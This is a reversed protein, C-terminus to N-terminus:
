TRESLSAAKRGGRIPLRSPHGERKKIIRNIYSHGSTLSIQLLLFHLFHPEKFPTGDHRQDLCLKRAANLFVDDFFAPTGQSVVEKVEGRGIPDLSM